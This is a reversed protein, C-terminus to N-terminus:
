SATEKTGTDELESGDWPWGAGPFNENVWDSTVPISSIHRRSGYGWGGFWQGLSFLASGLSRFSIGCNADKPGWRVEYLWDYSIRGTLGFLCDGVHERALGSLTTEEISLTTGEAKSHSLQAVRIKYESAM